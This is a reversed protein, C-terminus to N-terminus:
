TGTEGELLVTVDSNAARELLAITTRMVTTSGVLPGFRTAQSQPLKNREAVFEFRVTARGLRLSSGGRVFCERVLVGDVIAGNRSKLDVGTAGAAEIRIECHFRSVTPDDIVLDNLQHSGIAVRDASSERVAGAGPGETV